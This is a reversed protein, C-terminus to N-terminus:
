GYLREMITHAPVAIAEEEKEMIRNLASKLDIAKRPAKGPRAMMLTTSALTELKIGASGLVADPRCILASLLLLCNSISANWTRVDTKELTTKPDYRWQELNLIKDVFPKGRVFLLAVTLGYALEAAFARDEKTTTSKTIVCGKVSKKFNAAIASALAEQKDAELQDFIVNSGSCAVQLVQNSNLTASARIKRDSTLVSEVVNALQMATFPGDSNAHWALSVLLRLAAYSLESPTADSCALLSAAEVCTENAVIEKGVPTPGLASLFSCAAMAVEAEAAEIISSRISLIPKKLGEAEESEAPDDATEGDEKVSDTEGDEKAEDEKAEDSLLSIIVEMARAVCGNCKGSSMVAKRGKRSGSSLRGLLEFASAELTHRTADDKYSVTSGM